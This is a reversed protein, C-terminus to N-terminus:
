LKTHATLISHLLNNTFGTLSTIKGGAAAHVLVSEGKELRAVEVLSRYATAYAIPISAGQEFSMNDPLRQVISEHARIHTRMAGAGVFVVRDGCSLETTMSGVRSVIGCAEHGFVPRQIQGMTIM